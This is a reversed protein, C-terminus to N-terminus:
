NPELPAFWFMVQRYIRLRPALTPVLASLWAGATLILREARYTHDDTAVEVDHSSATWRRVRENTLTRAGSKQAQELAARICAEPYVIGGSPELCGQDDDAFEFQPFRSRLAPTDLIEHTIGHRRAVEVTAALFDAAGHAATASRSPGSILCGITRLLTQGSAAELERWIAHSRQALPVYHSGEGLALRTIRTDGHSSGHRHPPEYRDIGLAAVGRKSLQYLAASGVAGLGVVIVSASRQMPSSKRHTPTATNTVSM